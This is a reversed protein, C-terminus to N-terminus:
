GIGGQGTTATGVLDEANARKLLDTVVHDPTETFDTYYLGVSYFPEPNVACVCRVKRVHGFDRCSGPPAVPAAVVIAKPSRADVAKVAAEMTAGTALGDDVIIVVKDEVDAAPVGATYACRRRELEVKERAIVEDIAADSLNLGDLMDQNVVKFGGEAIAGFALEEHGPVGLKRVVLTGLPAKLVRAIEFAVPVGGRPLGLIVVDDRHAYETLEAALAIGAEARDAYIEGM